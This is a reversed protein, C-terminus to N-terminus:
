KRTSAHYCHNGQQSQHVSLHMVMLNSFPPMLTDQNYLQLLLNTIALHNQKVQFYLSPINKTIGFFTLTKTRMTRLTPNQLLDQCSHDVAKASMATMEPIGPSRSSTPTQQCQSTSPRRTSLKRVNRSCKRSQTRHCTVTNNSVVFYNM